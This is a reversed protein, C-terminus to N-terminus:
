GSCFQSSGLQRGCIRFSAALRTAGIIGQPRWPKVAVPCTISIQRMLWNRGFSMKSFHERSSMESQHCKWRSDPISDVSSPAAFNWFGSLPCIRTNSMCPKPTRWRCLDHMDSSMESKPMPWLLYGSLRLRTNTNFAGVSKEPSQFVTFPTRLSRVRFLITMVLLPMCSSRFARTGGSRIGTNRPPSQGHLMPSSILAEPAPKM